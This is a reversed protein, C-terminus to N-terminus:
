YWCSKTGKLLQMPPIGFAKAYNLISGVFLQAARNLKVDPQFIFQLTCQKVLLALVYVCTTSVIMGSVTGNFEELAIETLQLDLGSSFFFFFLYLNQYICIGSCGLAVVVAHM